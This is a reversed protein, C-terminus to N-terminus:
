VLGLGSIRVAERFIDHTREFLSGAFFEEAILRVAASIDDAIVALFVYLCALENDICRCVANELDCSM